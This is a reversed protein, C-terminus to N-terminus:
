GKKPYPLPGSTALNVPIAELPVSTVHPGSAVGRFRPPPAIVRAIRREGCACPPAPEDPNIASLHGCAYRVPIM